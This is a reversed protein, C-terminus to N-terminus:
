FVPQKGMRGLIWDMAGRQEIASGSIVTKLFFRIVTLKIKWSGYKLFFFFRNRTQYYQSITSGAGGSSGANVHWIHSEPCILLRYGTEHIRVSLDVDELYLFYRADFMGVQDLVKRPILACCGTAFDVDQVSRFQGRDVEDVGRHFADLNKWDVSGGVYWIVKGKQDKSYSGKHFEHDAAFYILPTVLGVNDNSQACTVLNQLFDPQVITDNNLLLIYDPDKHELAHRIALNNGSTFGLNSDSRLITTQPPLQSHPIELPEKSGNDLVTVSVDLDKIDIKKLSLLCRKTDEEGNYHVTIISVKTM